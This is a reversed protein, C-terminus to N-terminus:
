KIFWSMQGDLTQNKEALGNDEMYFMISLVLMEDVKSEHLLKRLDLESYPGSGGYHATIRLVQTGLKIQAAQRETEKRSTEAKRNRRRERFSAVAQWVALAYGLWWTFGIWHRLFFNDYM